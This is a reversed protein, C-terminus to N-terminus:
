RNTGNRGPVIRNTLVSKDLLYAAGMQHAPYKTTQALTRTPPHPDARRIRAQGAGATQDRDGLQQVPQVYDPQQVHRHARDLLAVPSETGTLQQDPHRRCLQGPLVEQDPQVPPASVAPCASDGTGPSAEVVAVPNARRKVPSDFSGPKSQRFVSWPSTPEDM